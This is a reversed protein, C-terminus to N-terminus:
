PSSSRLHITLLEGDLPYGKDLCQKLDEIRTPDNAPHSPSAVYPM